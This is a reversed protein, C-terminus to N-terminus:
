KEDFKFLSLAYDLDSQEFTVKDARKNGFFAYIGWESRPTKYDMCYKIKAKKAEERYKQVFIIANQVKLNTQIKKGANFLQRDLWRANSKLHEEDVYYCEFNGLKRTVLYGRAEPVVPIKYIATKEAKTESLLQDLLKVAKPAKM